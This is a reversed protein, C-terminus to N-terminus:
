WWCNEQFVKLSTNWILYFHTKFYELFQFSRPQSHVPTTIVSFINGGSLCHLWCGNCRLPLYTKREVQLWQPCYHALVLFLASHWWFSRKKRGRVTERFHTAKRCLFPVTNQPLSAPRMKGPPQLYQITLDRWFTLHRHEMELESESFVFEENNALCLLCLITWIDEMNQIKEKLTSGVNKWPEFDNHVDAQSLYRPCQLPSPFM